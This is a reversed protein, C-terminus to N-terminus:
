AREYFLLFANASFVEEQDVQTVVSDNMRYWTGGLCVLAVYHGSDFSGQYIHIGRIL